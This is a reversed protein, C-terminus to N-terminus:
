KKKQKKQWAILELRRLAAGRVVPDPHLAGLHQLVRKGEEGWVCAFIHALDTFWRQLTQTRKKKGLGALRPHKASAAELERLIRVGLQFARADGARALPAAAALRTDVPHDSTAAKALVELGSKGMAALAEGAAARAHAQHDWRGLDVGALLQQKLAPIAEQMKYAGVLRILDLNGPTKRFAALVGPRAEKPTRWRLYDLIVRYADPWLFNGGAAVWAPVRKHREPDKMKVLACAAGWSHETEPKELAAYLVPVAVKRALTVAAQVKEPTDYTGPYWGLAHKKDPTLEPKALAAIALAIDRADRGKADPFAKALLEPTRDGARRTLTTLVQIRPWPGGNAFLASLILPIVREDDYTELALAAMERAYSDGKTHPFLELLVPLLKPDPAKRAAKFFHRLNMQGKQQDSAAKWARHWGLLKQVSAEHDLGALMDAAHVARGRRLAFRPRRPDPDPLKAAIEAGKQGFKKLAEFVPSGDRFAPMRASASLVPLSREQKLYGLVAAAVCVALDRGDDSWFYTAEEFCAVDQAGVQGAIGKAAGNVMGYTHVHMPAIHAAAAWLLQQCRHFADPKEIEFIASEAPLRHQWDKHELEKKLAPLKEKGLATLWPRLRLYEPGRISGLYDLFVPLARVDRRAVLARAAAARLVPDDSGLLKLAKDLKGDLVEACVTAEVRLKENKTAVHRLAKAARPGGIRFISWAAARAPQLDRGAQKPDSAISALPDIGRPDGLDGLAEIAVTRDRYGGRQLNAAIADFARPQACKGLTAVARLNRLIYAEEILFNVVLNNMKERPILYPRPRRWWTAEDRISAVFAEFADPDEFRALLGDCVVRTREDRAEARKKKVFPMLAEGLLGLADRLEAYGLNRRHAPGQRPRRPVALQLLVPWITEAADPHKMRCLARAAETAVRAQGNRVAEKLEPAASPDGIRGLLEACNTARLSYSQMHHKLCARLAPTAKKGFGALGSKWGRANSSDCDAHFVLPEIAREDGLHGLMRYLRRLATNASPGVRWLESVLFPVAKRDFVTQTKVGGRGAVSLITGDDRFTFNARWHLGRRWRKITEPETVHLLVDTAVLQEEPTGRKAKRRLLPLAEEGREVILGRCITYSKDHRTCLTAFLQEVPPRDLVSRAEGADAARDLCTPIMAGALAVLMTTM